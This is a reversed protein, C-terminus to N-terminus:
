LEKLLAFLNLGSAGAVRAARGDSTFRVLKVAVLLGLCDLARSILEEV